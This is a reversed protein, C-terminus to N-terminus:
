KQQALAPDCYDPIETLFPSFTIRKGVMDGKGPGMGAPGSPDGFYNGEANSKGVLAAAWNPEDPNVTINNAFCSEHIQADEQLDQFSGSPHAELTSQLGPVLTLTDTNEPIQDLQDIPDGDSTDTSEIAPNSVSIAGGYYYAQNQYFQSRVVQLNVHRAYIAGGRTGDTINGIFLSNDVSVAASEAKLGGGIGDAHNGIFKVSQLSAKASELYLGAGAFGARNNEFISNTATLAGLNFYLGGGNEASNSALKVNNLVLSGNFVYIAGGWDDGVDGGHLTLDEITLTGHLLEFFRFAEANPERRITAGNGRITLSRIVEPLGNGVLRASYAWEEQQPTEDLQTLTYTGPMLEIVSEGPVGAACTDVSKGSNAAIIAESLSCKGNEKFPYIEQELTDVKILGAPSATATPEATATPMLAESTTGSGQDSVPQPTSPLTEGAGGCAATFLVLILVQIIIKRM